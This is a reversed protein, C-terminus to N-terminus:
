MCAALGIATSNVTHKRLARQLCWVAVFKPDKSTALGLERDMRCASNLVSCCGHCPPTWGSAHYMHKGIPLRLHRLSSCRSLSSAFFLVLLIGPIYCRKSVYQQFLGDPGATNSLLTFHTTNTLPLCYLLFLVLWGASRYTDLCLHQSALVPADVDESSM